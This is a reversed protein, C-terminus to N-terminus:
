AKQDARLIAVRGFGALDGTGDDDANQEARIRHAPVLLLLDARAQHRARQGVRVGRNAYRELSRHPVLPLLDRLDLCQVVRLEILIEKIAQGLRDEQGRLLYSSPDGGGSRRM